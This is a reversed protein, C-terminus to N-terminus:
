YSLKFTKIKAGRLDANSMQAQRLNAGSFDRGFLNCGDLNPAICPNSITAPSLTEITAATSDSLTTESKSSCSAVLLLSTVVLRRM